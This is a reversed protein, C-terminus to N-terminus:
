SPTYENWQVGTITVTFPTNPISQTTSEDVYFGLQIHVTDGPELQLGNPSTQNWSYNAGPVYFGIELPLGAVSSPMTVKLIVPISGSNTLDFDALPYSYGNPTPVPFLNNWSATITAGSSTNSYSNIAGWALLLYNSPDLYPDLGNSTYALPRSMDMIPQNSVNWVPQGMGGAPNTVQYGQIETLAANGGGSVALDKWFLDASPNSVTLSVNGTQATGSVTILSSWMSFGIGMTGM